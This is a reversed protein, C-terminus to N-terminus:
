KCISQLYEKELHEHQKLFRRMKREYGALMKNLSILHESLDYAEREGKRILTVASNRKEAIENIQNNLNTFASKIGRPSKATM